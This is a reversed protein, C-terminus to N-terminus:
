FINSKVQLFDGLTIILTLREAFIILNLSFRVWCPNCKDHVGYNIIFRVLCVVFLLMIIFMPESMRHAARLFVFYFRYIPSLFKHIHHRGRAWVTIITLLVYIHYYWIHPTPIHLLSVYWRVVQSYLANPWYTKNHHKDFSYTAREPLCSELVCSNM